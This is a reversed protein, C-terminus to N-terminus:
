TTPSAAMAKRNDPGVSDAKTESDYSFTNVYPVHHRALLEALEPQHTRGVLALADVGREVFQRVLQYEQELDYQSCALLLHLPQPSNAQMAEAARAFDGHSLTPFVARSPVAADPRWRGRRGTRCGASTACSPPLHPGSCLSVLEPTNM